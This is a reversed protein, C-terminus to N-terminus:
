WGFCEDLEDLEAQHAAAAAADAFNVQAAAAVVPLAAPVVALAPQQHQQQDPQQDQQQDPQQHQQQQEPQEMTSGIWTDLDSQWPSMQPESQQQPWQTSSHSALCSASDGVSCAAAAADAFDVQAVAAVVPLAAQASVKVVHVTSNAGLFTLGGLDQQSRRCAGLV